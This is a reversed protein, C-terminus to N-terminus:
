RYATVNGAFYSPSWLEGSWFMKHTAPYGKRRITRSSLGTLSNVLASVPVKLPCNVLLRVHDDEGDFDMLEADFDACVSVFVARLDELVEKTFLASPLL